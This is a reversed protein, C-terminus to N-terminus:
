KRGNTEADLMPTSSHPRRDVQGELWRVGSEKEGVGESQREPMLRRKKIVGRGSNSYFTRGKEGKM